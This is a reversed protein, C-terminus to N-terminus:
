RLSGRSATATEAVGTRRFVLHSFIREVDNIAPVTSCRRDMGGGLRTVFDTFNRPRTGTVKEVEGNPRSGRGSAITETLIKPMEPSEARVGSATV